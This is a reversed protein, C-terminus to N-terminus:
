APTVDTVRLSEGDRTVREWMRKTKGTNEATARAEARLSSVEARLARIEAVLAEDRKTGSGWLNVGLSGDAGRSLPMIAEPGAEGMQAMNFLTPQTVIGNTFVGGDAFGALKKLEAWATDTQAGFLTEVISRTQSDTYLERFASYVTAKQSATSTATNIQALAMKALLANSKSINNFISQLANGPDFTVAGSITVTAGTATGGTILNLFTKQDATLNSSDVLAQVTKTVIATQQALLTKQDATLTGTSVATNITKLVTEDVMTLAKSQEPTLANKFSSALIIARSATTTSDLLLTKEADTLTSAMVAGITVQYIKGKDAILTKIDDPLNSDAVAKLQVDLTNKATEFATKLTGIATTTKDVATVTGATNAVIDALAKEAAALEVTALRLAEQAATFKAVLDQVERTLPAGIQNAVKLASAMETQAAALEQTAELMPDAAAAGEPVATAAAVAAVEAVSSLIRAREIAAEATTRASARSVDIAARAAEPLGQMAESDGGLARRLLTGFNQSPTAFQGRVFEQLSTGLEQVRLAADRAANAIGANLDAIRANAAAVRDQASIYASTAQERVAAVGSEASAVASRAREVAAQAAEVAATYERQAQAAAAAAAQADELATIQDFLARNSADLAARDLARLAATNGQLQLLQRELGAREQAIRDREAALAREADAAEQASQAAAATAAQSDQLATIQDFLARNSADLAARDLARLAATDGQLQLLQRELGAREQAIRDREAALAREADAAEQAAQAAAATAAQSDELATIQDFLARNSADLAARELARLAATDGQLQLLQRELGQRENLIDAASRLTDTVAEGADAVDELVPTIAAFTGSLQMLTSFNRRGAETTLDQAEVLQRFADRTTPLTMGMAGLAETLQATVHATREAESFFDQYYQATVQTFNELGGFADAMTSALDAGALSTDFLQLGLLEMVPNITSISSALRTLTQVATEGTRAFSPGTAEITRTVQSVQEIYGRMWRGEEGEVWDEVSTTITETVTRSAGLVFAALDENAQSLAAQVKQAAEEPTLGDLKIGRAALDNHLVDSGLQTTFTRVADSSLGLAEAMNAANTRLAEYATQIAQSEASVRQNVMSYDPGSFLTGGRRQLDYSQIDGAGLTGTLGGGVIKKSRFVGAANLVALAALVYPAAAAATAMFGSGAGAAASSTATAGAAGFSGTQAALMAAQSGAAINTTGIAAGYAASSGFIASGIAAGAANGFASGAAASGASLGLASGVAAQTAGVIPNVVAQVIPRLVMSRFLGKIYEWASKGGQMLADSLSQGIQDATRQWERAAEEASRRNAELAERSGILRALERRAEIEREIELWRESGETLKQQAERLREIGVLEIAEALSINLNRSMEVAQAEQQLASIRTNVGALSAAAARAQDREFDAIAQDEARRAATRASAEAKAVEEIRKIEAQKAKEAAENAAREAAEYRNIEALGRRSIRDREEQAAKEAASQAAKMQQAREADAKITDKVAESQQRQIGLSRSQLRIQEQLLGEQLRLADIMPQYRARNDSRADAQNAMADALDKQVKVLESEPSSKRGLGLMADWAEKAGDKIGRWAREIYGLNGELTATRQEVTSAYGNIAVAAAEATRGQDQLAKIQQYLSVTLYNTTENLKVSAAVPDKGLAAFQKVTEEAAPGGARELQIAANAVRELSAAGIDASSAMAALVEAARSQTGGVADIREAMQSLAGATTGAANGSLVLAREYAASEQRGMYFAAGLAAAAAAAATYPNILTRLYGAVGKLAQGVGGYSDKIQGGQQIFVMWAPMGSALSTVVDTMQMSLQRNAQTLLNAQVRADRSMAVYGNMAQGANQVATAAGGAATQVDKLAATAQDAAANTGRMAKQAVDNIHKLHGEMQQLIQLLQRDDVTLAIGINQMSM